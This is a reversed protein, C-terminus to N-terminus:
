FGRLNVVDMPFVITILMSDPHNFLWLSTADKRTRSRDRFKTVLVVQIYIVNDKKKSDHPNFCWALFTSDEIVCFVHLNRLAEYPTLISLVTPRRIEHYHVDTITCVVNDLFKTGNSRKLFRHMSTCCFCHSLCHEIIKFNDIKVHTAMNIAVITVLAFPKLLTAVNRLWECSNARNLEKHNSLSKSYKSGIPMCSLAWKYARWYWLM